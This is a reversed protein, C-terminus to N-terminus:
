EYNEKVEEKIIMQIDLDNIIVYEEKTDPDSVFKGAHRAFIVHDGVKCWERLGEPQDFWATNGVQLVVGSQTAERERREDRAIIIKHEGFTHETEVPDPKILVRAGCVQLRM